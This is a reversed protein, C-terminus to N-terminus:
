IGKADSDDACIRGRGVPIRRIWKNVRGTRPAVSDDGPRRESLAFTEASDCQSPQFGCYHRRYRSGAHASCHSPLWSEQSLRLGYRTDQLTTEVLNTGRAEHCDEEIQEQGTFALLARRAAEAESM